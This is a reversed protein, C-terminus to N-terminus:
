GDRLRMDIKIDKHCKVCTFIWETNMLEVNSEFCVPCLGKM